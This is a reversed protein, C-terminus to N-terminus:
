QSVLDDEGELTIDNILLFFFTRLDFSPFGRVWWMWLRRGPPEAGFGYGMIERVFCGLVFLDVVFIWFGYSVWMMLIMRLETRSIMRYHRQLRHLLVFFNVPPSFHVQKLDCLQLSLLQHSPSATVNDYSHIMPGVALVSEIPSEDMEAPERIGDMKNM